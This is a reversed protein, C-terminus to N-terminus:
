YNRTTVKKGCGVCRIYNYYDKGGLYDSTYDRKEDSPTYQLRAGCNRCTIEKVVSNDQGVIKVPV